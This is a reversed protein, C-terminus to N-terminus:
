QMGELEIITEILDKELLSLAHPSANVATRGRGRGGRGRNERREKRDRRQSQKPTTQPQHTNTNANEGEEMQSVRSASCRQEDENPTIEDGRPTDEDSFLLPSSNSHHSPQSLPALPPLPHQTFVFTVSPHSHNSFMPQDDSDDSLSYPQRSYVPSMALSMEGDDSSPSPTPSLSPSPSLISPSPSMAVQDEDTDATDTANRPRPHTLSLANTGKARSRRTRGQRRSLSLNVDFAHGARGIFSGLREMLPERVVRERGTANRKKDQRKTKWVVYHTLLRGVSVAIFIAVLDLKSETKSGSLSSLPIPASFSSNGPFVDTKSAKLLQRERQWRKALQVCVVSWHKLILFLVRCSKDIWWVLAVAVCLVVVISDIMAMKGSMRRVILYVSFASIFPFAWTSIPFFLFSLISFLRCTTDTFFPSNRHQAKLLMTSSRIRYEVQPTRLSIVSSIIRTTFAFAVFVFFEMQLLSLRKGFIDSSPMWLSPLPAGEPQDSGHSSESTGSFSSESFPHTVPCSLPWDSNLWDIRLPPTSELSNPDISFLPQNLWSPIPPISKYHSSPCTDELPRPCCFKLRSLFSAPSQQSTCNDFSLRPDAFSFSARDFVTEHLDTTLSSFRFYSSRRLSFTPLLAAPLDGRCHPPFFYHLKTETLKIFSHYIPVAQSLIVILGVFLILPSFDIDTSIQRRYSMITQYLLLILLSIVMLFLFSLPLDATWPHTLLLHPFDILFKISTSTLSILFLVLRFIPHFDSSSKSFTLLLSSLGLVLFVGSFGIQLNLTTPLVFFKLLLTSLSVAVSGWLLLLQLQVLLKRLRGLERRIQKEEIKRSLTLTMNRYTFREHEHDKGPLLFDKRLFTAWVRRQQSAARWKHSVQSITHVDRITPLYTFISSLVDEPLDM